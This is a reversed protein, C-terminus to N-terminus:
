PSHKCGHFRLVNDPCPAKVKVTKATTPPHKTIWEARSFGIQYAAAASFGAVLDLQSTLSPLPTSLQQISTKGETKAYLLQGRQLDIGLFRYLYAHQHAKTNALLPFQLTNRQKADAYCEGFVSGIFFSDVPCLQEILQAQEALEHLTIFFASNHAAPVAFYFKPHRYDVLVFKPNQQTPSFLLRKLLKLATM